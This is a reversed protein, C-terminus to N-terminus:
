LRRPAPQGTTLVQRALQCDNRLRITDPGGQAHAQRGGLLALLSLTAGRIAVPIMVKHQRAGVNGAGVVTIKDLM